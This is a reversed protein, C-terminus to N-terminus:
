ENYFRKILSNKFADSANIRIFSIWSNMILNGERSEPYSKSFEILNDDLENQNAAHSLTYKPNEILAEYEEQWYDIVDDILYSDFRQKINFLKLWSHFYEKDNVNNPGIDLKLNDYVVEDMKQPDKIFILEIKIGDVNKYPYYGWVWNTWRGDMVVRQGKKENCDKGIPILNDFNIASFPFKSEPLWHDLPPRSQGEIVKTNELGCFVCLRGNVKNFDKIYDRISTKFHAELKPKKVYNSYLGLYFESVKDIFGDIHDDYYIKLSDLDIYTECIQRTSIAEIRNNQEIIKILGKFVIRACIDDLENHIEKLKSKIKTSKYVSEFWAPFTIENFDDKQLLQSFCEVIADHLQNLNTSIKTVQRIM